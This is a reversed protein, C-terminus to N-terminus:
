YMDSIYVWVCHIYGRDYCVSWLTIGLAYMDLKFPCLEEDGTPIRAPDRQHIPLRHLYGGAEPAMLVTTTLHTKAPLSAQGVPLKQSM